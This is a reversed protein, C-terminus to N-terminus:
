NKNCKENYRMFLYTKVKLKPNIQKARKKLVLAVTPKVLETNDLFNQKDEYLPLIHTCILLEAKM